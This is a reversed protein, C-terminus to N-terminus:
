TPGAAGSGPRPSLHRPVVPPHPRCQRRRDRHRHRLTRRPHPRHAVLRHPAAPHPHGSRSSTRDDVPDMDALDDGPQPGGIWGSRLRRRRLVRGHGAAGLHAPPDMVRRPATLLDHPRHRRRAPPPDRDPLSRHHRGLPSRCACRGAVAATTTCPRRPRPRGDTSPRRHRHQRSIPHTRHPRGHGAGHRRVTPRLDPTSGIKM